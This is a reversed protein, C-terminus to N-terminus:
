QSKSFSTSFFPYPSGRRSGSWSSAFRRRCRATSRRRTTPRSRSACGSASAPASRRARTRWTPSACPWRRRRARRVASRNRGGAGKSRVELSVGEAFVIRYPSPVSYSEEASKPVPDARVALPSAGAGLRGAAGAGRGRDRDREREPELRGKSFACSTGARPRGGTWSCCRRCAGSSRRGGRLRRARRGALMLSLRRQGADLRLYFAGGAALTGSAGCSSSRAPAARGGRADDARVRLPAAVASSPGPRGRPPRPSRRASPPPARMLLHLDAHRDAGAPLGRAAPRAGVRICGHSVPRGLLREYLTGHIMYGNGFYLAYEGLSGYELRDAPNKPIPRARRSSPGTPSAGCRTRWRRSSRSAGARRTSCGSADARARGEAGHGLGGLLAGRARDDDGRMLRLRNHTQDIVIWTGARAGQACPRRWGSGSPSPPPGRRAVRRTAPAAAM